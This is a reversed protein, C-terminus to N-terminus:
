RYLTDLLDPFICLTYSLSSSTGYVEDRMSSVSLSDGDSAASMPTQPVPEIDSSVDMADYDEDLIRRFHPLSQQHARTDLRASPRSSSSAILPGDRLEDVESDDFDIRAMLQRHLPEPRKKGVLDLPPSPLPDRKILFREFSLDVAAPM